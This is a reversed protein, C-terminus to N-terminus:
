KFFDKDVYKYLTNKDVIHYNKDMVFSTDQLMVGGFGNAARFRIKLKWGAIERTKELYTKWESTAKQYIEKKKNLKNQYFQLSDTLGKVKETSDQNEEIDDKLLDIKCKTLKYEIYMDNNCEIRYWLTDIKKFKVIELKSPDNLNEKLYSKIAREARQQPRTYYFVAVAIAVVTVIAIIITKKM